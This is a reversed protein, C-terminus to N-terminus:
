CPLIFSVSILSGDEDSTVSVHDAAQGVLWLGHGQQIPWPAAITAQGVSGGGPVHAGHAATPGPDSVECFLTNAAVRMRIRGHGAGHRVANAALEHVVIMVDMARDRPMGCGAAYALVAERLGALANADFERDLM